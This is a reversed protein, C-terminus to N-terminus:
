AQGRKSEKARLLRLKQPLHRLSMQPIIHLPDREAPHTKRHVEKLKQISVKTYLQTTTLKVHGLISQVTRIDAGNELLLTACTRRFIHGADPKSIGALRMNNLVIQSVRSEHMIQGHSAPFLIESDGRLLGPRVEEVYRKIWHAARKGTPVIRDSKTKPAYIRLTENEFDFDCLRLLVLESRRLGTGFLTELIARERIGYQTNTDPRTIIRQAESATLTPRPLRRPCKPPDLVSAPDQMIHGSELLWRSFLFVHSILMHVTRVGFAAGNKQRRSGAFKMFETLLDSTVDRVDSVGHSELWIFYSRLSRRRNYLTAKAAGKAKLSDLHLAGIEQFAQPSELCPRSRSTYKVRVLSARNKQASKLEASLKEAPHFQRHSEKLREASVHTYIQTTNINEHGLFDQIHRIDAGGELMLTAATHRLLHASGKKEIGAQTKYESVLTTILDASLREGRLNVFVYGHESNTSMLAPRAEILYKELFGQARLGLPVVRDKQNKGLRVFVSDDMIDSLALASLESRRLGTSYLTELIARDRVGSPSTMDCLACLREVESETLPTRPLKKHKPVALKQAPNAAIVSHRTLYRFFMRVNTIHSAITSGSLAAGEHTKRARLHAAFEELDSPVINRVYLESDARSALFGGLMGMTRRAHTITSKSEGRIAKADLFQALYETFDSM